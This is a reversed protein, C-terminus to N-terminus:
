PLASKMEEADTKGDLFGQKLRARVSAPVVAPV